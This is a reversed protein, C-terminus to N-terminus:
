QREDYSHHNFIVEPAFQKNKLLFIEQQIINQNHLISNLMSQCKNQFDRNENIEESLTNVQNAMTHIMIIEPHREFTHTELSLNDSFSLDCHNCKIMNASNKEETAGSKHEDFVHQLLVNLDDASFPCNQCTLHKKDHTQMKHSKLQNEDVAFLGCSTCKFQIHCTSRHLLFSEYDPAILSCSECQYNQKPIVNKPLITHSTKM